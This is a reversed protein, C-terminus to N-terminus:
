DGIEDKEERNSRVIEVHGAGYLNEVEGIKIDWWL